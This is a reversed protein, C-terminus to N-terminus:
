RTVGRQAAEERLADVDFGLAAQVDDRDYHAMFIPLGLLVPIASVAAIRSSSLSQIFEEGEDRPLSYLSRRRMILCLGQLVLLLAFFVVRLAPTGSFFFEESFAIVQDRDPPPLGEINEIFMPILRGLRDLIYRKM